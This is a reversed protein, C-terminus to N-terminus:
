ERTLTEDLNLINLCVATLAALEVQPCEAPPRQQGHALFAAAAEPDARYADVARLWSSRLLKLEAETPPRCLAQRFVWELQAPPPNALHKDTIQADTIQADTSALEPINGLETFARCALARAAEVYTVDNLTTLAHLPTNTRLPKVECVQRKAADFFMTPGVIRRWFTYISRRYLDTGNGVHYRKKGFTAEAWVGAPQYPYVPEGGLQPNLLGSIALAQDRLMWAPLRYRAGRALYRNEPDQEFDDLHLIASSRRYTQSTLITRLLHKVDWGSAIFEAALWDLLDGHLPYEGQVGFDEATKVLGVGYLMQWFRNVAVRATLPNQPSVLWRALALRDPTADAPLEPLNAPVGATVEEGPQNYLGRQLVYTPRTEAQDAMVMVRPIQRRVNALTQEIDAQQKSLEGLEADSGTFAATVISQQEATRQEAAIRLIDTLQQEAAPLSAAPDTSSALQFHGLNHSAHKSDHRLTIQLQGGAPLSLPQAFRFLGQQDRSAPRGEYVAWGTQSNGDFAKAITLDGQEFSAEGGALPQKQWDAQSNERWRVELETLVFNGSNSRAFGGATMDPHRVATLLLATLPRGAEVGVGADGVAATLPPTTLVYTDNTPTEGLALINGAPTVSLTQGQQSLLSDFTLTQWSPASATAALQEAEWAAQQAILQQRRDAIATALERQRNELQDIQAQQAASPVALVPPTQPNGGAGNVPTQNFFATFRYYDQQSLPDFKHDHCRCCNLTLGLWATGVTETMDMVYDVRNEEAIRGGEGNIMHNRNFGTALVKEDNTDPLLDGALQWVTFEDFPQNRNFADVAWDRWPWMTRESDGQYGNTDAYRAVELWQWAMREGYGPAALVRDVLRDWAGPQQDALFGDVQEESPPLGTLDLYLRRILTRRDAPPNPTLGAQEIVPSVLRDIPHQSPVSEAPSEQLAPREPRRIPEFAWHQGWEAGSEVWRRLTEIQTPSLQRGLEAPPMRLDADDSAVRTILESAEADGALVVPYGGRSRKVDEEDDLRLDGQRGENADPGHCQYCFDSLIPLVDRAYSIPREPEAAPLCGGHWALLWCALLWCALDGALGRKWPLPHSLRARHSQKLFPLRYTPAATMQYVFQTPQNLQGTTPVKM